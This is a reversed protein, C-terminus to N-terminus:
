FSLKEMRDLAKKLRADDVTCAIRFHGEGTKGFVHGASVLVHAKELLEECFRASSLGTKKIGPFLYFTGRPRCLELYPLKEIRDSAYFVRDRYRRVYERRISLDIVDDYKSLVDPNLTLRSTKVQFRKAIYSRKIRGM